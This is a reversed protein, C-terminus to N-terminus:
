SNLLVSLLDDASYIPSQPKTEPPAYPDGIHAAEYDPFAGLRGATEVDSCVIINTIIGDEVICFRM